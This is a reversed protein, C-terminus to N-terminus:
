LIKINLKRQMSDEQIISNMRIYIEDYKYYKLDVDDYKIHIYEDNYDINVIEDIRTSYNYIKHTIDFLPIYILIYRENYDIIIKYIKLM